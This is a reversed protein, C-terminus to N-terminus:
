WMYMQDQTESMQKIKWLDQDMCSINLIKLSPLSIYLM